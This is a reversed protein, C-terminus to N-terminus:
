RWRGVRVDTDCGGVAQCEVIAQYDASGGDVGVIGAGDFKQEVVHSRMRDFEDMACPNGLEKELVGGDNGEDVTIGM